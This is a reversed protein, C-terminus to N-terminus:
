SEVDERAISAASNYGNPYRRHLKAINAEMVEAMDLNLTTCLRAAYWLIDSMEERLKDMDIGHQYLIQKKILNCVEGAEGALGITYWLMMIEADSLEFGPGDILTRAAQRQYDNANM